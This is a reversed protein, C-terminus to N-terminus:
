VEKYVTESLIRSSSKGDTYDFNKSKFELVKEYDYTEKELAEILDDIADVIKGPVFSDYEEYFGRGNIYLNKDFAYFIMPIELISAEYITSSYDTILISSVCLLDNIERYDTMNIIVDQYENPVTFSNKVLFHSKILFIADNSRCYKAIKRLDLKHFPFYASRPGGGRFTPGYLIVKKANKIQPYLNYVKEKTETIYKDSFFSDTKPIGTALVSENPIAFAEAYFGAVHQSSVFSLDYIKHNEGALLPASPKGLRSYGFTKFAGNAHWLQVLKIDKKENIPLENIMPQYDEIFIYDSTAAHFPIAIKDKLSSREWINKKFAMRISGKFGDAVLQNYVYELNGGIQERSASTFFVKKKRKFRKLVYFFQFLALYMKKNRSKNLGKKIKSKVALAVTNKNATLEATFHNKKADKIKINKDKSDIELPAIIKVIRSSTKAFLEWNGEPIVEGNYLTYLNFSARISGEKETLSTTPLEIAIDKCKLFVQEITDVYKTQMIEVAFIMRTVYINKIYMKEDM